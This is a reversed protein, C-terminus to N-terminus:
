IIFKNFNKKNKSLYDHVKQVQIQVALLKDWTAFTSYIKKKM